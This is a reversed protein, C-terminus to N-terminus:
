KNIHNWRIGNIIKSICTQSVGFRSGLALQTSQRASYTERIIHVQKQTLKHMGNREGPSNGDRGKRHRDAINESHTGLFLHTPNACHRVDCKHCVCLGKPVAGFHIIWSFVHTKIAKRKGDPTRVWFQGYGEGTRGKTWLWCGSPHTTNLQSLFEIPLM